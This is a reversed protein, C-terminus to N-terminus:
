RPSYHNWASKVSQRSAPGNWWDCSQGPDVSPASRLRVCLDDPTSCCAAIPFRLFNHQGTAQRFCSEPFMSTITKFFTTNQHIVVSVFVRILVYKYDSALLCCADIDITLQCLAITLFSFNLPFAISYSSNTFSVPSQMCQMLCVSATRSCRAMCRSM